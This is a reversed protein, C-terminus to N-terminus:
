KKSNRIMRQYERAKIRLEERHKERYKKKYALIKERYKEKYKKRQALYEERNEERHKKRQLLIKEKNKERYEKNYRKEYEKRKETIKRKHTKAYNKAYNKSYELIKDRNKQYYEKQRQKKEEETKKTKQLGIQGGCSKNLVNYPTNERYYSIWYKEREIGEEITLDNEIIVMKPHEVGHESSFQYTRESERHKHAYHRGKPNITRGIYITNLEEWLYIYINDKRDM